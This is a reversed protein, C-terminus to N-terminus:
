KLTIINAVIIVPDYSGYLEDYEVILTAGVEFQLITGDALPIFADNPSVTYPSIVVARLRCNSNVEIYRSDVINKVTVEVAKTKFETLEHVSYLTDAEVNEIDTINKFAQSQDYQYIDMIDESLKFCVYYTGYAKNVRLYITLIPPTFDKTIENTGIRKHSSFARTESGYTFSASNELITYFGNYGRISILYEPSIMPKKIGEDDEFTSFQAVVVELEGLGCSSEIVQKAGKDAIDEVNINFKYASHIKVYEFPYSYVMPAEENGENTEDKTADNLLENISYTNSKLKINENKDFEKFAAVGIIERENLSYNTNVNYSSNNGTNGSNNGGSNNSSNNGTNGSNNGGSNNGGNNNSGGKNDDSPTVTSPDDIKQNNNGTGLVIGIPVIIAILLALGLLILGYQRKFINVGKNSSSANIGEYIKRKDEENLDPVMKNLDDLM